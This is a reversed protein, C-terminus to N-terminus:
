YPINGNIKLVVNTVKPAISIAIGNPIPVAANIDSYALGLNFVNKFGAISISAAIGETTIPKKPITKTPGPIASKAFKGFPKFAKFPAIKNATIANGVIIVTASSAIWATGFVYLSAL